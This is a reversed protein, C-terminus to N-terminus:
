ELPRSIELVYGDPDEVLLLKRGWSVKRPPSLVTADASQLSEHIDDVSEVELVVIVGDGRTDGVPDLGFEELVDPEFEEELVLTCAGTEFKARGESESTLSLGLADRYFQISNEIESVMLYVQEVSTM